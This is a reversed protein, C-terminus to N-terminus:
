RPEKTPKTSPAGPGESGIFLQRGDPLTIDRGNGRLSGDRAQYGDVVVEQGIPFSAKTIGRRFLTNPTGGEFAWNEVTGDPRKVDVHIWSHPNTFEVSTITGRMKVPKEADFEQSFAHHALLPTAGLLLGIGGLSVTLGIRM